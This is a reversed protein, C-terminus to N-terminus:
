ASTVHEPLDHSLHIELLTDVLQHTMAGVHDRRRWELLPCHQTPYGYPCPQSLIKGLEGRRNVIQDLLKKTM